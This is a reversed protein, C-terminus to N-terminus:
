PSYGEKFVASLDRCVPDAVNFVSTREVEHLQLDDLLDYGKCDESDHDSYKEFSLRELPVM